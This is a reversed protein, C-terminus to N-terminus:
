QPYVRISDKNRRVGYYRDVIKHGVIDGIKMDSNAAVSAIVFQDVMRNHDEPLYELILRV